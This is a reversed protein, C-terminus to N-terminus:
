IRWGEQMKEMSAISIGDGFAAQVGELRGLALCIRRAVRLVRSGGLLLV